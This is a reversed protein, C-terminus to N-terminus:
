LLICIMGGNGENIIKTMAERLKEQVQGPMRDLKGSLEDKMLDSLPKGLMNTSWISEPDNEFESLLYKVLEESQQETGVMPSVQACTDVQILHLSPASAKLRVGYRGGQKVIQPKELKLESMTPAVLGYGTKEVSDLAAAVRDYARKMQTMECMLKLLHEEGEVKQGSAEGLVQYFLGEALDIRCNVSGQSLDINELRASGAYPCSEGSFAGTLLSHDRVRSMQEAAKGASEMLAACLWHEEELASVWAPLRVFARRLPFEFLLAELLRAAMKEDMASVDMAIVKVGYKEGLGKELMRTEQNQPDVSNLLVVFPKGLAKLEDVAQEEAQVYATRPIDTITGDTTIVVGLTAHDQIVKRTGMEAAQEFPIDQDLWPTRVMREDGEENVGLAGKVPYGVSDVLRVRALANDSLPIEVAEGPVFQIQTTTITKGAGSLPLEDTTRERQSEEMRPLVMTEMFRKVFTSKGTRVPGVVGIYIDGGTRDSIDQYVQTQNEM